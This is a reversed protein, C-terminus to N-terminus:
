ALLQDKLSNLKDLSALKQTAITFAKDAQDSTVQYSGYLGLRLSLIELCSNLKNVDCKVGLKASAVQDADLIETSGDPMTLVTAERQYPLSGYALLIDDRIGRDFISYLDLDDTGPELLERVNKSAYQLKSTIAVLLEVNESFQYGTAVPRDYAVAIRNAISQLLKRDESALYNTVGAETNLLNLQRQEASAKASAKIAEIRELVTSM